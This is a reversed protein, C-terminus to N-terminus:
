ARAAHREAFRDLERDMVRFWLPPVLALLLSGAYGYPLQPAEDYHRLTYFPRNSQQHHDSHRGLNFLNVNSLIHSSNWSHRPRVREYRGDTGRERLLGYHELYNIAELSVVALVGQVVFLLLAAPGLALGIAAMLVLTLGHWVLMDNHLSIAPRGARRLREREIRWASRFGGAISRPIFRYVSEGRLATAPDDPTAVRVHHGRVHEICFHAYGVLAMLLFGLRRQGRRTRHMLEHAAVIGVFASFEGVTVALLAFEWWALPTTAVAWLAWGLLGITALAAGLLITEYRRKLGAEFRRIRQESPWRSHGVAHEAVPLLVFFVILPAALWLGGAYFCAVVILAAILGTTYALPYRM